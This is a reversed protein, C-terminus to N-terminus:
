ILGHYLGFKKIGKPPITKALQMFEILRAASRNSFSFSFPNDKSFCLFMANLAERIGMVLERRAAPKTERGSIPLACTQVGTM